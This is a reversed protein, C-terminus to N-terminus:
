ISQPSARRDDRESRVSASRRVPQESGPHEGHEARRGANGINSIGKQLTYNASFDVGHSMRKRVSMILANYESERPQGDSPQRQHEPQDDPHDGGAPAPELPQGPHAPQRASPLEPRTRAFNVYDVSVVHRQEARAVVRPQEADSVASSARISGSASCRSRATNVVQNQSQSTASRSAPATSADTPNRIGNTVNCTSRRASGKGTSDAAAFLVNSNTYGVDTYVGWGGRVIDKGNGRVDLVGGIRPQFNNQDEKPELGFNELGVIGKLLGAAGAAQVERLEPEEVRDIQYGTM